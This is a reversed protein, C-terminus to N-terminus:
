KLTLTKLLPGSKWLDCLAHAPGLRHHHVFANWFVRYQFAIPSFHGDLGTVTGESLNIRPIRYPDDQRRWVGPSNVFAQRYGCRAIIERVEPSADGNPYSFLSCDSLREAIAAKSERVEQEAEAAPITTLIEHHQTHSGFGAGARDLRAVQLWSM